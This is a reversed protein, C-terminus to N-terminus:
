LFWQLSRFLAKCLTKKQLHVPFVHGGYIIHIYIYKNYIYICIYLICTCISIYFPRHVALVIYYDLTELMLRGDPKRESSPIYIYMYLIYIYIYIYYTHIYVYM